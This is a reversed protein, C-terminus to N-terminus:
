RSRCAASPVTESASVSRASENGAVDIAAVRYVHSSGAVLGSDEYTTGTVTDVLTGDRYVAYAAMGSVCRDCREVVARCREHQHREGLPGHSRRRRPTWASRSPRPRKLTGPRMRRSTGCRAPGRPRSRSRGSYLTSAGGNLTYRTYAIVGADIPTLTVSVTGTSWGSPANDTTFPATTDILFPGLSTPASWNGAVDGDCTSTGRGTRAPRTSSMTLGVDTTTVYGTVEIDDWDAYEATNNVAASFAGTGNRRRSALLRPALRAGSAGTTTRLTDVAGGGNTSYEVRAYDQASTLASVQDWFDLEASTYGSLDYDRYFNVTRRHQQEGVGRRRVHRQQPRGREHATVYTADPRGGQRGTANPFTQSDVHHHDDHHHGDDDCLTPSRIPRARRTRPGRTRSAPVGPM